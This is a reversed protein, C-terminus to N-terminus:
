PERFRRGLRVMARTHLAQAAGESRGMRRGVEVFSLGKLDRLEIVSRHDEALEALADVIDSLEEHATAVSPPSPSRPDQAARVLGSASLSELARERRRRVSDRINNRAIATLWRLLGREDSVEVRGVDEILEVFVDQLFDISEASRRAQDGMMMRIRELLQEGHRDVLLALADEEGERARRVLELTAGFNVGSRDASMVGGAMARRRTSSRFYPAGVLSRDDHMRAPYTGYQRYPEGVLRAIPGHGAIAGPPGPLSRGM